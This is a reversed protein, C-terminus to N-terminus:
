HLEAPDAESVHLLVALGPGDKLIWLSVLEADELGLCRESVREPACPGMGATSSRPFSEDAPHIPCGVPYGIRTM